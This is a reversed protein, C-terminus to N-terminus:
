WSLRRNKTNSANIELVHGTKGVGSWGSTGIFRVKYFPSPTASGAENYILWESTDTANTTDLDILVEKPFTSGTNRVTITKDQGESTIAVDTDVTADSSVTRLTINGDAKTTNHKTSLWWNKDNTQGEITNIGRETCGLWLDCYLSVMIPTQISSATVNEYFAKSAKARAYFYNASLNHTDSSTVDDADSVTTKAITLKIPNAPRNRKRDFNLTMNVDTAGNHGDQFLAKDFNITINGENDAELTVSGSATPTTTKNYLLKSVAGTPRVTESLNYEVTLTTDKAYCGQTYNEAPMGEAILAEIAVSLKAGMAKNTGSIDHLYTFKESENANKFLTGTFSFKAPTVTVASSTQYPTIAVREAETHPTDDNDVAAFESGNIEQLTFSFAGVTNFYTRNSEGGFLGDNFVVTTNSELVQNPCVSKDEPLATVIEFSSNQQENYAITSQGSDDEARYVIEYGKGARVPNAISSVTFNRPRVAFNDTSYCIHWTPSGVTEATCDDLQTGDCNEEPWLRYVYRGTTANNENTVCMKFGVSLDKYARPLDFEESVMTADNAADFNTIDSVRVPIGISNKQYIAVEVTTDEGTSAKTEYHTQNMDTSVLEVKFPKEVIKTSISKDEPVKNEDHRFTDWADFPGTEPPKGYYGCSGKMRIWSLEHNNCGGGTGSSIAYRIKAPTIGQNYQSDKADFQDIIVQYGSGDGIDRELTIYLHDADRADITMKYRGSYYDTTNKVAVTDTLEVGQLFEYGSMGNGDGRIVATNTHAQPNFSKGNDCSTGKLGGERNENCNGFNGYEDIGLGLWGGEFGPTNNTYQAYGMSGGSGGPVPEAGVASDFLTNVIGDAGYRGVGGHSSGCGGYAHYDFEVIILNEQTLFEYDKTITTALHKNGDTLRLRKDGGVDVIQPTFGGDSRLVRWKSDLGNEFNDEFCVPSDQQALITIETKKIDFCIDDDSKDTLEVFFNEALEIPIDNFIGIPLTASKEGAKITINQDVKRRYDGDSVTANGDITSYTVTVDHNLARSLVIRTNVFKETGVEDIDEAINYGSKEFGIGACGCAEWGEKLGSMDYTYEHNNNLNIDEVATIAGKFHTNSTNHNGTYAGTTYVYAAMDYSNGGGNSGFTFDGYIFIRMDKAEGNDSDYNFDLGNKDLDMDSNIFLRVEGQTRITVSALNHWKGIWYDGETFTVTAGEKIDLSQILMFSTNSDSYTENSEFTVSSNKAITVDGYSSNTETGSATYSSYLMSLIFDPLKPAVIEMPENQCAQTTGNARCEIDKGGSVGENYLTDSDIVLDNNGRNIKKWTNLASPALGCEVFQPDKPIEIECQKLAGVHRVGDKTYSTYINEQLMSMEFMTSTWVSNSEDGPEIDDDVTQTTSEGGLTIKAGMPGMGTSDQCEGGDKDDGDSRNHDTGCDDGMSGGMGDEDIVVKVDTLTEGDEASNRLPLENRWFIKVMGMMNFGTSIPEAYCIDDANEVLKRFQFDVMYMDIDDGGDEEIYLTLKEGKDVPYSEITHQTGVEESYITGTVNSDLRFKFNHDNLASATIDITGDIGVTFSYYDADGSESQGSLCTNTDEVTDQLAPITAGPAVDNAVDDLDSSCQSKELVIITLLQDDTANKDDSVTVTITYNNDAVAPDNLTLVGSSSDISFLAVDAGSISFTLTDSKDSDNADVDTVDTNGEFVVITAEDGGSNSTIEPIHNVENPDDEVTIELTQLDTGTQQDDATVEVLYVNNSDSDEPTEYDPTSKFTLDGTASDIDFLSQDDGGTISYVITDNDEDTATVTTVAKENETITLSASDGGGDSTIEPPTNNETTNDTITVTITQTDPNGDGDDAQVEVSYDNDSNFDTPNEYDPAEKFSLEGSTTNITFKDSDVGGSIAYTIYDKSDNSTAKVTTVAKTNEEISLAASDGGGDSTIEPDTNTFNISIDYKNSIDKGYRKVHIYVVEGKTLKINSKSGSAKEDKRMIDSDGCSTGGHFYLKKDAKFSVDLIGNSPAKYQYYDHKNQNYWGYYLLEGQVDGTIVDGDCTDSASFSLTTFLLVLTMFKLLLRIQKM